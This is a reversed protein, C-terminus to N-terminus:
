SAIREFPKGLLVQVGHPHAPQVTGPFELIGPEGAGDVWAIVFRISGIDGPRLGDLSLAVSAKENLAAYSKAPLVRDGVFIEVVVDTARYGFNELKFQAETGGGSVVRGGAQLSMKPRLADREKKREEAFAELQVDVQRKTVEVLAQQHEVSQKLEDAQQRLAETSLRLEQGQQFYGLILWLLALPGVVGALFDGVENLEMDLFGDWKSWGLVVVAALYLLTVLIGIRTLNKDM